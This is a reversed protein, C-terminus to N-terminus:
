NARNETIKIAKEQYKYLNINSVYEIDEFKKRGDIIKYPIKNEDL